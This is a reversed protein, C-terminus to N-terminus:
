AKKKSDTSPKSAKVTKFKESVITEASEQKSVKTDEKQEDLQQGTSAAVCEEEQYLKAANARKLRAYVQHSVEVFPNDSTSSEFRVVDKNDGLVCMPKTIVIKM